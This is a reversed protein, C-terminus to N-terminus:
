LHAHKPGIKIQCFNEPAFPFQVVVQPRTEPRSLGRVARHNQKTLDSNGKPFHAVKRACQILKGLGVTVNEVDYTMVWIM